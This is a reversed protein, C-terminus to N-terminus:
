VFWLVQWIPALMATDGDVRPLPDASHAVRQM